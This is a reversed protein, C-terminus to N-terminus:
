QKVKKPSGAFFRPANFIIENKTNDNVILYVDHVGNANRLFTEATGNETVVVTGILKGETSDLRIEVNYPQKVDQAKLGFYYYGTGLDIDRYSISEDTNLKVSENELVIEYPQNVKVKDVSEITQQVPILTGDQKYKLEDVCVSRQTWTGEAKFEDQRWSSLASTHYFLYEKGHFEVIGGHNSQTLRWPVYDRGPYRPGDKVNVGLEYNMTGMHNFPGLPNDSIGYDLLSKLRNPDDPNEPDVPKGYHAHYSVYYKGDRKNMWIAEMFHDDDVDMMVPDSALEKMNDALKAGWHSGYYLYKEGDDDIFVAPDIGRTGEIKPNIVKFKQDPSNSVAVAIYSTVKRKGEEYGNETHVIRVPFYLYYKGEYYAMDPAWLAWDEGEPEEKAGLVDWVNLVEGHDIWNVMDASSFTHYCHMTSYGGGNDSDVSTVMWVRGDPMVHPAADATYMHKIIPNSYPYPKTNKNAKQGYVSFTLVIGVALILIKKNM